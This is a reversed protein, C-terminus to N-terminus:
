VVIEPQTVAPVQRVITSMLFGQKTEVRRVSCIKSAILHLIMGVPRSLITTSVIYGQVTELRHHYFIRSVIYAQKMTVRLFHLIWRTVKMVVSHDGGSTLKLASQLISWLSAIGKLLAIRHEGKRRFSRRVVPRNATSFTKRSPRADSAHPLRRSMKSSVFRQLQPTVITCGKCVFLTLLTRRWGNPRRRRRSVAVGTTANMIRGADRRSGCPLPLCSYM